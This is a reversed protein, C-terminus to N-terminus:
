ELKGTKGSRGHTSPPRNCCAGGQSHANAHANEDLFGYWASKVRWWAGSACAIGAKDLQKLPTHIRLLTRGEVGAKTALNAM